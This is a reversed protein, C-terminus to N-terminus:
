ARGGELEALAEAPTLGRHLIGMLARTIGAPDRHQIINRGYVIGRAGQALVAATRELLVRDDVRGGGRVLVPTDGAVEIV